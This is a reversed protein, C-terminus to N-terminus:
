SAIAVEVAAVEVVAEGQEPAVVDAESSGSAQKQWGVTDKTFLLGDIEQHPRPIVHSSFVRNVKIAAANGAAVAATVAGVDGFLKVTTLGGGKAFEYGLLKVNAAKVAADAATVAAALGVTEILGLAQRSM